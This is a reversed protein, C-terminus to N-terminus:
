KIVYQNFTHYTQIFYSIPIHFYVHAVARRPGNHANHTSLYLPVVVVSSHVGHTLLDNVIRAMTPYEIKAIRM